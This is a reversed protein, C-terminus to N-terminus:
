DGFDADFTEPENRAQSSGRESIDFRRKEDFVDRVLEYNNADVLGEFSLIKARKNIGYLATLGVRAGTNDIYSTPKGYSDVVKSSADRINSPGLLPLVLYPGSPVGWVALTQGFDEDTTTLGFATNATDSLGLTTLTNITFRGLSKASSVPKGQLLLNVSTVPESLNRFFNEVGSRFPKPTYKKYFVATPRTIYHDLRMNTKHMFQNYPKLPDWVNPKNQDDNGFGFDDDSESTGQISVQQPITTDTGVSTDQHQESAYTTPIFIFACTITASVHMLFPTTM